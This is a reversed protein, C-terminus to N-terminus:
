VSEDDYPFPEWRRGHGTSRRGARLETLFARRSAESLPTASRELADIERELRRDRGRRVLAVVGVGPTTPVAWLLWAPASLVLLLLM